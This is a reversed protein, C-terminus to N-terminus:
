RCMVKVHTVSVKFLSKGHVQGDFTTVHCGWLVGITILIKALGMNTNDPVSMKEWLACFIVYKTVFNPICLNQTTGEYCM